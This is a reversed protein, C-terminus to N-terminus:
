ETLDAAGALIKPVSLVPYLVVEVARDLPPIGLVVLVVHVVLLDLVALFRLLCLVAVLLLALDLLQLGLLELEVADEVRMRLLGVRADLLHDAREGSHRGLDILEGVLDLRQLLALASGPDEPVINSSEGEPSGTRRVGATPRGGAEQPPQRREATRSARKGM